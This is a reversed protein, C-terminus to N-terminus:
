MDGLGFDEVETEEEPEEVTLNIGCERLYWYIAEMVFEEYKKDEPLIKVLQGDYNLNKYGMENLRRRVKDALLGKLVLHGRLVLGFEKVEAAIKDDPSIYKADEAEMRAKTEAALAAREEDWVDKRVFCGRYPDWVRIAMSDDTVRAFRHPEWSGRGSKNKGM